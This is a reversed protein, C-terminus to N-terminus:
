ERCQGPKQFDTGTDVSQRVVLKRIEIKLLSIGLSGKTVLKVVKLTWSMTVPTLVTEDECNPLPERLEHQSVVNGDQVDMMAYKVAIKIQSFVDLPPYGMWIQTDAAKSTAVM